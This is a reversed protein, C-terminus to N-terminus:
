VVEPDSTQTAIFVYSTVLSCSQAHYRYITITIADLNGASLRATSSLSAISPLARRLSRNSYRHCQRRHDNRAREM